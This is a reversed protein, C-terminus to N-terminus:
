IKHARCDSTARVTNVFFWHKNVTETDFFFGAAPYAQSLFDSALTAIWNFISYGAGSKLVFLAVAQQFFLGVIVTPWPILSRNRSALWLCFQFVFLGLVSIARDGYTTGQELKFGFASGFIIGLLCLWGAALRAIRPLAFFPKSVAPGWVAAVPKTVVSNPIFRFAIILIFFWAFLTQVIWRHRTATLVTASIWWGLIVLAVAVLIFPRYKAYFQSGDSEPEDQEDQVVPQQSPLPAVEHVHTKSRGDDSGASAKEIDAEQKESRPEYAIDAM